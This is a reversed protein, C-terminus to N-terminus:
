IHQKSRRIRLRKCVSHNGKKRCARKLIVRSSLARSLSHSVRARVHLNLRDIKWKSSSGDDVLSPVKQFNNSIFIFYVGFGSPRTRFTHFVNQLM